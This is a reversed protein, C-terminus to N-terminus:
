GMRELAGTVLDLQYVGTDTTVRWVPTLTMVRDLSTASLYGPEIRDIRSCVDGMKNLGNYFAILATARDVSERGTDAVPTGYLRRGNSIGSIGEATWTVTAQQGFLCGQELCQRLTISNEEEHIIEGSFNLRELVALAAARGDGNAPFHEPVFEAWFSGDSHFQIVGRDSVYRYVEGGQQEPAADEGLVLRALEGEAQRDRQATLPQHGEGTPILEEAVGIGKQELFLMAERQAQGQRAYASLRPGGILGALALNLALLVILIINKLKRWEM